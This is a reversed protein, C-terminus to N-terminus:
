PADAHRGPRAVAGGRRDDRDRGHAGLRPRVDAAGDDRARGAQGPRQPARLPSASQRALLRAPRRDMPRRHPAGRCERDPPGVVAAVDHLRREGAARARDAGGGAGREAGVGGPPRSPAAPTRLPRGADGGRRPGRAPSCTPRPASTPRGATAPAISSRAPPSRPRSARPREGGVEPRGACARRRGLRARAPAQVAQARAARRRRRGPPLLVLRDSRARTAAGSQDPSM